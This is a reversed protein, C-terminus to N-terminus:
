RCPNIEMETVGIERCLEETFAERIIEQRDESADDVIPKEPMERLKQLERAAEQAPKNM